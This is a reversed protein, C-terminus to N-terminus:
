RAGLELIVARATGEVAEPTAPAGPVNHDVYRGLLVARGGVGHWQGVFRRPGTGTAIFPVDAPKWRCHSGEPAAPDVWEITHASILLVGQAVPVLQSARPVVRHSWQLTVRDFIFLSDGKQEPADAHRGDLALTFRGSIFAKDPSPLFGRPGDLQTWRTAGAELMTGVVRGDAQEVWWLLSGDTLAVPAFAQGAPLAPEPLSRWQNSALEYKAAPSGRPGFVVLAGAAAVRVAQWRSETNEPLESFIGAVADFRARPSVITDDVVTFGGRLWGLPADHRKWADRAPAYVFLTEGALVVLRSKLAIRSGSFRADQGGGTWAGARPSLVQGRVSAPSGNDLVVLLGDITFTEVGRQLSVEAAPVERATLSPCGKSSAPLLTTPPRPSTACAFLSLVALLYSTTSLPM